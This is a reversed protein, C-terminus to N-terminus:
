LQNAKELLEALRDTPVDVLKSAGFENILKKVASSKQQQALEAFRARVTELSVTEAKKENKSKLALAIEEPAEPAELTEAHVEVAKEILEGVCNGSASMNNLAHALNNIAGSLEEAEVKITINM